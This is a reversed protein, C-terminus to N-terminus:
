FKAVVELVPPPAKGLELHRNQSGLTMYLNVLNFIVYVNEIFLYSLLFEKVIGISYVGFGASSYEGLVHGM